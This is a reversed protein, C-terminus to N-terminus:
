KIMDIAIKGRFIKGQDYNQEEGTGHLTFSIRYRQSSKPPVVVESAMRDNEKPATLWGDNNSVTNFGGKDSVAKFWFNDSTFTNEVNIWNINYKIERNTTNTITFTIDPIKTNVTEDNQDDPYLDTLTVDNGEDFM